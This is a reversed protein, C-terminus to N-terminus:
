RTLREILALTSMYRYTLFHLTDLTDNYNRRADLVELYTGIGEKHRETALKLTEKAAELSLKVAKIREKLSKIELLANKLDRKVNFFTDKFREKEQFIDVKRQAVEAERAFGDFFKYNLSIGFTYGKVWEKGGFLSKRTTYGEYTLYADLTPYYDAKSLNYTKKAVEIRAKAVKLTSNNKELFELLKEESFDENLNVELKGMFEPTKELKLFAKFNEISKEYDARAQALEAKANEFQAKARVYEVKPLIGAKYKEEVTKLYEEWYKLNEKKLEVVTWKYLIAYYMDKVRYVVERKVDELILNQLEKQSKALSISDFIAKNFITQSLTIDYSQRDRLAFGYVLSDDLRLYSYSGTVKPLIGSLAKKIEYDLKKLEYRSLKVDTVNKLAISVAEELTLPFSFTFLFLIVWIVRM